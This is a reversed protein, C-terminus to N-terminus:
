DVHSLLYFICVVTARMLDQYQFWWDICVDVSHHELCRCFDIICGNCMQSFADLCLAVALHLTHALYVGGEDAAESEADAISAVVVAVSM